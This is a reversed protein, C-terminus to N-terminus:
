IENRLHVRFASEKLGVLESDWVDPKAGAVKCTGPLVESVVHARVRLIAGVLM